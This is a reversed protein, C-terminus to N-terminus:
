LFYGCCTPINKIYAIYQNYATAELGHM